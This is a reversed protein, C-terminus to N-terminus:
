HVTSEPDDSKGNGNKDVRAKDDDAEDRKDGM